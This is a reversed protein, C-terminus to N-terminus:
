LPGFGVYIVANPPIGGPRIVSPKLLTFFEFGLELEKLKQKIGLAASAPTFGQERIIEIDFAYWKDNDPNQERPCFEDEVLTEALQDAFEENSLSATDAHKGPLSSVSRRGVGRRKGGHTSKKPELIKITEAPVVDIYFKTKDERYAFGWGGAILGVGRISEVTFSKQLAKKVRRRYRSIKQTIVVGDKPVLRRVMKVVEPVDSM